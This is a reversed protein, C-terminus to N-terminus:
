KAVLKSSLEEELLRTSFFSKQSGTHVSDNTQSRWLLLALYLSLCTIIYFPKTISSNLNKQKDRWYIFFSSARSLLCDHTAFMNQSWVSVILYVRKRCIWKKWIGYFLGINRPNPVQQPLKVVSHNRGIPIFNFLSLALLQEISILKLWVKWDQPHTYWASFYM